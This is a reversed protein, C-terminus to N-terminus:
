HLALPSPAGLLHGLLWDTNDLPATLPRAPRICITAPVPATPQTLLTNGLEGPNQRQRHVSSRPGCNALHYWCCSAAPDPQASACLVRRALTHPIFYGTETCLHPGPGAAQRAPAPPLHLSCVDWLGACAGPWSPTSSCLPERGVSQVCPLTRSCPCCRLEPTRM